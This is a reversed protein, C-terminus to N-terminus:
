IKYKRKFEDFHTKLDGSLNQKEIVDYLCDWTLVIINNKYKDEVFNKAEKAQEYVRKNEKPVVFIIYSNDDVHILNRMMQYHNFFNLENNLESVIKGNAAEKYIQEYKTKHEVDKKAKGFGYETYKIEFYLEKGSETEFYFDFNTPRLKDKKDIKSEKEFEVTAYNVREGNDFGLTKLIIDLKKEVILPYFFNICMAQSSNLHNFYQHLKIDKFDSKWFDKGYTCILNLERNSALIHPYEIDKGRVRFYGNKIKSFNTSKSKYDSLHKKIKDSYSEYNKKSSEM